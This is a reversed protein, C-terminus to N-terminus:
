KKWNGPPTTTSSIDLKGNCEDISKFTLAYLHCRNRGGFRSIIIWGKERLEKLARALTGKSCWGREQMTKFSASLDGNNYGNYQFCFELLLSRANVSLSIYNDHIVCQYPIGVFRGSARRGKVKIRRDGM